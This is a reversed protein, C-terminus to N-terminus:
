PSASPEAKQIVLNLIQNKKCEDVLLLVDGQCGNVAVIRDGPKVACDPNADNWDQVLGGTVADVLLTMGDRHDVDVGLRTGSRKDLTAEYQNAQLTVKAAAPPPPPPPAKQIVEQQDAPHTPAKTETVDHKETEQASCCSGAQGM